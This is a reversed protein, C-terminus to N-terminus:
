TRRNNTQDRLWEELSALSKKEQVLGYLVYTFDLLGVLYHKLIPMPAFNFMLSLAEADQTEHDANEFVDLEVASNILSVIRISEESQNSANFVRELVLIDKFKKALYIAESLYPQISVDAEVYLDIYSTQWKEDEYYAEIDYFIPYEELAELKKKVKVVIPEPKLLPHKGIGRELLESKQKNLFRESNIVFLESRLLDLFQDHLLM